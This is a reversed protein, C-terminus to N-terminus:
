AGGQKTKTVMPYVIKQSLETVIDGLLSRFPAVSLVPFISRMLRMMRLGQGEYKRENVSKGLGHYLTDM